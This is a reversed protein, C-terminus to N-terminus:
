KETPLLKEEGRSGEGGTRILYSWLVYNMVIKISVEFLSLDLVPLQSKSYMAGFAINLSVESIINQRDSSSSNPFVPIPISFVNPWFVSGSGQAKWGAGGPM